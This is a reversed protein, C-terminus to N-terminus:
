WEDEDYENDGTGNVGRYDECPITEIRENLDSRLDIIGKVVGLDYHETIVLIVEKMARLTPHLSNEDDEVILSGVSGGGVQVTTSGHYHTHYWNTGAGHEPLIDLVYDYSEGPHIAISVDDSPAKPSIHM